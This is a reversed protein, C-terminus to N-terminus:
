EAGGSRSYSKLWVIVLGCSVQRSFTYEIPLQSGERYIELAEIEGPDFDNVAYGVSVGGGNVAVAPPCDPQYRSRGTFRRTSRLSTQDFMAPLGGVMDMTYGRKFPMYRVVLNGVRGSRDRLIDDQTLFRGGFSSRSRWVFDKMRREYLSESAKVVVEPLEFPAADLVIRFERIENELTFSAQYPLHGIRRAGLWYRGSRLDDIRFRGNEGTTDSKRAGHIEVVVGELPDGAADVVIGHVIPGTGQASTGSVIAALAVAAIAAARLWDPVLLTRRM